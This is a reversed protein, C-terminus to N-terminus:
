LWETPMFYKKKNSPNIVPNPLLSTEIDAKTIDFHDECCHFIGSNRRKPPFAIVRYIKPFLRNLQVLIPEYDSDGSILIVCDAKKEICDALMTTAINVDTKKENRILYENGCNQCYLPSAKCHKCYSPFLQFRGYQIDIKSGIHAKLSNLYKQQRDHKDVDGKIRSTFYRILIPEFGSPTIKESLSFYDIWKYKSLGKEKLGFYFNFGDIYVIAPKKKPM